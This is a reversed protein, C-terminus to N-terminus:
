PECPHPAVTPPAEKSKLLSIFDRAKQIMEREAAEANEIQQTLFEIQKQRRQVDDQSELVFAKAEEIEAQRLERTRQEDEQRQVARGGSRGGLYAAVVLMIWLLTSIRFQFRPRRM